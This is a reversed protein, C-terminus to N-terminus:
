VTYYQMTHFRTPLVLFFGAAQHRRLRLMMLAWRRATNVVDFRLAHSGPTGGVFDAADVIRAQFLDVPPAGVTFFRWDIITTMYSPGPLVM